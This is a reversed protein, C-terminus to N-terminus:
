ISLYSLALGYLVADGAMNDSGDTTLRSVRLVCADGDVVSDLNTMTVTVEHLRQGTTGIHTDAATNVTAFAKTEVDTTDTNPTIAALATEWVVGGSSATDAYWEIKLSMNGSAYNIAKFKFFSREVSSTSYNLGSAPFNTGIVERLRAFGTDGFLASRPDFYHYFDAM